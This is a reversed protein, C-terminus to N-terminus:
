ARTNNHYEHTAQINRKFYGGASPRVANVLVGMFEARTDSLENKLRAVMGRKEGMAKVVLMTADCRNALALGDGSVIAPAVDIIVLDYAAKAQALLTSMAESALREMARGTTAGVTLVDLNPESTRQTLSALPQGASLAEGLGPAESVGLIKHLAPRRFNADILLVRHEAAACALALNVTVTTAGSGPMGGVVLLCKHTAHHMRELLLARLQRFSEAVVGLPQDVFAMEMKRPGAPDAFADPVVGLVRTRPIIAVDGPGKVRQDVLERLFAFAGVLGLCLVAGAPLMAYIKPFTVDTPIRAPQLVKVRYFTAVQSLAELKSLQNENELRLRTTNEIQSDIDHISSQVQTLEILKRRNEDQRNTMELDQAQMESVAKRMTDMEGDFKQRSVRVTETALKERLGDLQAQAAKVDRHGEGLRKKQALVLAEANNISDNLRQINFDMEVKSRMDDPIQPGGPNNLDEEMKKVRVQAVEMDSRLKSLQETVLTLAQAAQGVRSEISDVSKETMLRERSLQLRGVDEKMKKIQNSLAVRQERMGQDAQARLDDEYAASVLKVIATVDVPKKWYMALEILNTQPVVRARLKKGLEISADSSNFVGGQTFQRSWAPAETPLRPDSAVQDLVRPSTLVATQTAMFREFEDRDSTGGGNPQTPDTIRTNCEYIVNSKWFPWIALWAFHGVGGLVTGVVGALVLAWKYKHFLKVPDISPAGAAGGAGLAPAPGAPRHQNMTVPRSAPITTM